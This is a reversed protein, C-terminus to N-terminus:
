EPKRTEYLTLWKTHWTTIACIGASCFFGCRVAVRIYIHTSSWGLTGCKGYGSLAVWVLEGSPHSAVNGRSCLSFVVAHAFVFGFVHPTHLM